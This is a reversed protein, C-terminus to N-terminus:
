KGNCSRIFRSIHFSALMMDDRSISKKSNGIYKPLAKPSLVWVDSRKGEPTPDVFWGPFVIAPQIKFDKGTSEKLIQKLWTVESRAQTIAKVGIDLSGLKITRGDYNITPNGKTPKSYTKTEIVFIGHESVVVHDLNFGEGILDHFVRYGNERLLELYQGVVREGDRGLRLNRISKRYKLIRVISYSTIGFAFITWM